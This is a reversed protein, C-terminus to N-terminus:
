QCLYQTTDLSLIPQIRELTTEEDLSNQIQQAEQLTVMLAWKRVSWLTKDEEILVLYKLKTRNRKVAYRKTM